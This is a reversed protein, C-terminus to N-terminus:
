RRCFYGSVYRAPIGSARCLAVLLHSYDQCVGTRRALVEDTTVGIATAGAEYHLEDGVWRVM